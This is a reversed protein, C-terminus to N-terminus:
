WVKFVTLQGDLVQATGTGEEAMVRLDIAKEADTINILGVAGVSTITGSVYIQRTAIQEQAVNNWYVMWNLTLATPLCLISTQFNVLYVGIDNVYIKSTGGLTMGASYAGDSDLAYVVSYTDQLFGALATGSYVYIEAYESWPLHSYYGPLSRNWLEAIGSLVVDPSYNGAISGIDDLTITEGTLEKLIRNMAEVNSYKQWDTPM